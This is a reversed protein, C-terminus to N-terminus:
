NKRLAVVKGEEPHIVRINLCQEGHKAGRKGAQQYNLSVGNMRPFDMLATSSTNCSRNKPTKVKLLAAINKWHFRVRWFDSNGVARRPIRRRM